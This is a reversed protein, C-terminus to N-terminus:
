DQSLCLFLIPSCVVKYAKKDNGYMYIILYKFNTAKHHERSLLVEESFSSSLNYYIGNIIHKASSTQMIPSYIFLLILNTRTGNQKGM